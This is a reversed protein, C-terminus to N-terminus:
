AQAPFVVVVVVALHRTTHRKRERLLVNKNKLYRRDEVHDQEDNTVNPEFQHLLIFYMCAERVWRDPYEGDEYQRRDYEDYSYEHYTCILHPFWMSM